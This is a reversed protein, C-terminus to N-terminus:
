RSHLCNVRGTILYLFLFISKWNVNTSHPILSCCFLHATPVEAVSELDGSLYGGVAGGELPRTHSGLVTACDDTLSPRRAHDPRTGM